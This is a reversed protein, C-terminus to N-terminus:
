FRAWWLLVAVVLAPLLVLPYAILAALLLILVTILFAIPGLPWLIALMVRGFPRADSRLLGWVVGAVYIAAAVTWFQPM